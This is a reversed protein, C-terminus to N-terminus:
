RVLGPVGASLRTSTTSGPASCAAGIAAAAVPDLRDAGLAPIVVTGARLDRAKRVAAAAALRVRQLTLEARPGLGVVLIRKAKPGKPYLVAVEAHVGTFDRRALLASLAGRAARDVAAAAGAPKREGKLIGIVLAGAPRQALNGCRFVIDM